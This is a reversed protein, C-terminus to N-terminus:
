PGVKGWQRHSLPPASRFGSVPVASLRQAAEAKRNPLCTRESSTRISNNAGSTVVGDGSQRDLGVASVRGSERSEVGDVAACTGIGQVDVGGVIVVRFERGVGRDLINFDDVDVVGSVGGGQGVSGLEFANLLQPLNASGGVHGLQGCGGGSTEAIDVGVDSDGGSIGGGGGLNGQVVQAFATRDGHGGVSSARQVAHGNGTGDLVGVGVLSNCGIRQVDGDTLIVLRVRVPM